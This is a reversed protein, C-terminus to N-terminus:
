DFIEVLVASKQIIPSFINTVQSKEPPDELRAICKQVNACEM